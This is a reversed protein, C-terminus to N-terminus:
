ASGTSQRRGVDRAHEVPRVVAGLRNCSYLRAAHRDIDVGRADIGRGVLLELFEGRGCGVELVPDNGVLREALEGYRELMEARSGRFAEDFRESSYWPEFDVNRVAWFSGFRRGLKEARIMPVREAPAIPPGPILATETPAVTSAIM